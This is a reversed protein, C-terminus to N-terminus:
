FSSLKTQELELVLSFLILGIVWAGHRSALKWSDLALLIAVLLFTGFLLSPSLDYIGKETGTFHGILFFGLVGFTAWSSSKTLQSFLAYTSLALFLYGVFPATFAVAEM